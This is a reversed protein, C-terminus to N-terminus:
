AAIKDVFYLSRPIVIRGLQTAIYEPSGELDILRYQAPISEQRELQRQFGRFNKELVAQMIEEGIRDVGSFEDKLISPNNAIYLRRRRAQKKTAVTERATNFLSRVVIWAENRYKVVEPDPEQPPDSIMHLWEHFVRPLLGKHIPLDRFLAPNDYMSGTRRHGYAAQPWYFHHVDLERLPWQYQPDVTARVDHVLQEIDLLGREDYTPQVRDEEKHPNARRTDPPLLVELTRLEEIHM